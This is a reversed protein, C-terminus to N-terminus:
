WWAEDFGNATWWPLTYIEDRHYSQVHGDTFLVNARGQHRNGIQNTDDGPRSSYKFELMSRGWGATAMNTSDAEICALRNFRTMKSKGAGIYRHDYGYSTTGTWWVSNPYKNAAPWQIPDSPCYFTEVPAYSVGPTVGSHQTGTFQHLWDIGPTPFNKIPFFDDNDGAYMGYGLGHQKMSNTCSIAKAKERAQNLAPLLMAALIAIIAIVVLLEILTFMFKEANKKMKFKIGGTLQTTQRINYLM